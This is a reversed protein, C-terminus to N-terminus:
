DYRKFAIKNDKEWYPNKGTSKNGNEKCKEICYSCVQGKDVDIPNGCFYCLHNSKRYEKINVKDYSRKRHIEADYDLCIQCRKKGIIAKRKGCRVCIGEESRAAYQIRKQIKMNDKDKETLPKRWKARKARCEFCTTDKGYVREKKCETCIHHKRCFDRTEKNYENTAQLCQTCYHGERDLDKGCRPCQNNSKRKMYIIKTRESQTM